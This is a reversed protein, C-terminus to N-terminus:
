SQNCLYNTYIEGGVEGAEGAEGAEGVRESPINAVGISDFVMEREWRLLVL